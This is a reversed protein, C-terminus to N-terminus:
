YQVRKKVQETEFTGVERPRKHGFGAAHMLQMPVGPTRVAPSPYSTPWQASYAQPLSSWTQMNAYYPSGYGAPNAYSMAGYLQNPPPFAPRFPPQATYAYQPAALGVEHYAPMYDSAYPPNGVMLPTPEPTPFAYALGDAILPGTAPPGDRRFHQSKRPAPTRSTVPKGLLSRTTTPSQLFKQQQLLTEQTLQNASPPKIQSIATSSQKKLQQWDGGVTLAKKSGELGSVPLTTKPLDKSTLEEILPESSAVECDVTVKKLWKLVSSVKGITEMRRIDAQQLPRIVLEHPALDRFIWKSRLEADALREQVSVAKPSPAIPVRTIGHAKAVALTLGNFVHTSSCKECRAEVCRTVAKFKGGPTPLLALSPSTAYPDLSLHSIKHKSVKFHRLVQTGPPDCSHYINIIEGQVPRLYMASVPVQQDLIVDSDVHVGTM